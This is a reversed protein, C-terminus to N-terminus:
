RRLHPGQCLDVFVSGLTPRPLGPVYAASQNPTLEVEEGPVRGHDLVLLMEMTTHEVDLEAMLGSDSGLVTGHWVVEGARLQADMHARRPREFLWGRMWRENM